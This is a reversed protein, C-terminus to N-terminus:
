RDEGLLRLVIVPPFSSQNLFTGPHPSLAAEPNKALDKNVL